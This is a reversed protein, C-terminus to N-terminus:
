LASAFGTDNVSLVGSPKASGLCTGVAAKGLPLRRVAPGSQAAYRLEKATKESLDAALLVLSTKRQAIRDCVADFGTTLRGARRAMGLLGRLRQTDDPNM